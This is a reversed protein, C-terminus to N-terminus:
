LDKIILPKDKKIQRKSKKGILRDLYLPKLDKRSSIIQRKISLNQLSFKEGKFIDKKALIYRHFLKRNLIEKKEPYIKRKGQMLDIRRIKEIMIKFNSPNLSIHHDKGKRKTNLTFHKEIIKAGKSVAALCSLEDKTHDSFGIINKFHKHFDEISNLNIENDKSPYLSTCKLIALNKNNKCASVAQKIERLYAMGTSIIISKFNKAAHSILPYNTLLGSSIKIGDAKFKKLKEVEEFSGPTSIFIIGIKKAYNIIKFLEEDNFNCNQFEKFSKSNKVYSLDPNITQLKVADAKAKKSLEIMKICKSLSGEHNIGIESIVFTNSKQNIIKKQIKFVKRKKM